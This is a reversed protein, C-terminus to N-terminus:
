RDHSGVLEPTTAGVDPGILAADLQIVQVGLQVLLGRLEREDMRVWDQRPGSAARLAALSSFAIGVRVGDPRRGIQIAVVDPAGATRTPVFM